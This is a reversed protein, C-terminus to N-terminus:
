AGALLVPQSIFYYARDDAAPDAGAALRELLVYSDAAYVYGTSWGIRERGYTFLFRSLEVGSTADVTVLRYDGTLLHVRGPQAAIVRARAAPDVAAPRWTWLPEGTDARRGEILGGATPVVVVDAAGSGAGPSAGGADPPQAGSTPREASVASTTALWAGDVALPPAPKPTRGRLLWGDVRGARSTRMGVCESQAVRCGLPQVETSGAASWGTVPRGDTVDHTRVSPPGGGCGSVVLYVGGTTTFDARRCERGAGPGRWLKRGSAADLGVTGTAGRAIVVRGATFLGNPAYLTSAGTRRGVYGSYGPVEGAEPSPGTARWAVRGTRADVAVLLGDSWRSVVTTGVAVVGVVEAPWRRYSWLPSRATRADAPADARVQRKAVYVRLRGDVILPAAALTGIVGSKAAPAAAPYGARAETVVEAPALVRYAVAGSGGLVAAAV